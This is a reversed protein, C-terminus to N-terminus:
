QKEIADVLIESCFIFIIDFLTAKLIIMITPVLWTM